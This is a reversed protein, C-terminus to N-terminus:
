ALPQHEIDKKKKPTIGGAILIKEFEEREITEKEILEHAITDLLPRHTTIIDLARAYADDIIKKVEADIESAVKDSHEKGEIGGGFLARGGDGEFAMTGLKDSMGYRTVMARALSTLVQLDNSPGTTIDGYVEKEAIYGGLSM